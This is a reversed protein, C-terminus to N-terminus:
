KRGTKDNMIHQTDVINHPDLFDMGAKEGYTDFFFSLFIHLQSWLTCASQGCYTECLQILNTLRYLLCKELFELLENTPMEQFRLDCKQRTDDFNSEQIIRYLRFTKVSQMSSFTVPLNQRPKSTHKIEGRRTM